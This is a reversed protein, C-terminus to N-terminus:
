GAIREHEGIGRKSLVELWPNNTFYSPLGGSRPVNLAFVPQASVEPVPESLRPSDAHVPPSHPLNKLDDRLQNLSQEMQLYMTKLTALETAVANDQPQLSAPALVLQMPQPAVAEDIRREDFFLLGIGRSRFVSADMSAGLVRPAALYVLPYSNRLTSLNLLADLIANREALHEPKLILVHIKEAGLLFSVGAQDRDINATQQAGM